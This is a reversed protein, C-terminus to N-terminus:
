VTLQSSGSKNAFSGSESVLRYIAAHKALEQGHPEGIRQEAAAWRLLAVVDLGPPEGFAEVVDRRDVVVAALADAAGVLGELRPRRAIMFDYLFRSHSGRLRHESEISHTYQWPDYNDLCIVAPRSVAPGLGEADEDRVFFLNIGDWLTRRYGSACMRAEWGDVEVSSEVVVVRPRWRSWDFGGLVSEEFGEVDVKLFDVVRDGGVHEAFVDDLTRVPMVCRETRYGLGEVMRVHDASFTSMGDADPVLWFDLTGASAGIGVNLNVDRPRFRELVEFVKPQPEINVGSWGRDYFNRTVSDIHPSNAGVDVYFGSESGGFARGLM